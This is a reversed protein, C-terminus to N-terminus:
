LVTNSPTSEGARNVAIVRYELEKGMDQNNLAINTELSTGVLVWAGTPLERREIKYFTVTGGEVPQKWTLVLEGRGHRRAAQLLLPQGPRQLAIAEARSGWGLMALKADNSRAKTEAYRLVAKMRFILEQFGLQKADTVQQTAAQAAIQENSLNIFADLTEKLDNATFPPDPFEAANVTLGTIINQALVKIEAERRPFTAM